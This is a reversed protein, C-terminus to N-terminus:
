SKYMKRWSQLTRYTEKFSLKTACNHTQQVNSPFLSKVNCITVSIGSHFSHPHTQTNTIPISRDRHEISLLECFFPIEADLTRYIYIHAAQSAPARHFDDVQHFHSNHALTHTHKTHIHSAYYFTVYIQNNEFTCVNMSLVHAWALSVHQELYVEICYAFICITHWRYHTKTLLRAHYGGRKGGVMFYPSQRIPESNYPFYLLVTWHTCMKSITEQYLAFVAVNCKKPKLMVHENVKVFYM